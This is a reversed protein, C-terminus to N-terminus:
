ICLFKPWNASCIQIHLLHDNRGQRIIVLRVYTHVIKYLVLRHFFFLLSLICCIKACYISWISLIKKFPSWISLIKNFPSWISLFLCCYYSFNCHCVQIKYFWLYIEHHFSLCDCQLVLYYFHFPTNTFAITLYCSFGYRHSFLLHFYQFPLPFFCSSHFYVPSLVSFGM